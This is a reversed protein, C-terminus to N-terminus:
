KAWARSSLRTCPQFSADAESMGDTPSAAMAPSAVLVVALMPEGREDMLLGVFITVVSV